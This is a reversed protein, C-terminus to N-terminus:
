TQRPQGESSVDRDLLCDIFRRLAPRMQRRGPYYIRLGPFTPSYRELVRRLRGEKIWGYIREDFTYVIGLGELAAQLLLSQDNAILPGTVDIEFERGEEVFEWRYAAGDTPWRWNLCAHSTLDAPKQPIGRAELYEPSAVAIMEMDPTIAVAIMDAELREGIRIGADFRAAVIDALADEVTIDLVVDPNLRHFRALRESVFPLAVRPLNVRLTGAPREDAAMAESFADDLECRASAFRAYLREGAATPAVSRTTRNLLRVGMRDELQRISQSLASRSTGLSAAARSFSQHQIVAALANLAGFDSARM